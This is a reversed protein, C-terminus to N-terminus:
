SMFLKEIRDMDRWLKELRDASGFDLLYRDGNDFGWVQHKNALYRFLGIELKGARFRTPWNKYLRNRDIMYVGSNSMYRLHSKRSISKAHDLEEEVIDKVWLNSSLVVGGPHPQDSRSSVVLSVVPTRKMHERILAHYDIDVITDGNLCLITDTDILDMACWLAGANEVTGSDKSFRIELGLEKTSRLRSEIDLTFPSICLVCRTFGISKLRTLLGVIYPKGAIPVLAKPLGHLISRVSTARGGCFVVATCDKIPELQKRM